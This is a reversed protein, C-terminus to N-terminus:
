LWRSVLALFPEIGVGYGIYEMGSMYSMTICGKEKGMGHHTRFTIAEWTRGVWGWELENM